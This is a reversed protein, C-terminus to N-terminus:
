IGVVGRSSAKVRSYIDSLLHDKPGILNAPVIPNARIATKAPYMALIFTLLINKRPASSEKIDYM